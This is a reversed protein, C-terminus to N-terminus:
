IPARTNSDGLFSKYCVSSIIKFIVKLYHSQQEKSDSPSSPSAGRHLLNQFDWFSTDSAVERSPSPLYISATYYSLPKYSGCRSPHFQRLVQDSHQLTFSLFPFSIIFSLLPWGLIHMMARVVIGICVLLSNEGRLIPALQSLLPSVCSFTDIPNM